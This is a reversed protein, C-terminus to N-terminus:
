FAETSDLFIGKQVRAANLVALGSGYIYDSGWQSNGPTATMSSVVELSGAEVAQIAAANWVSGPTFGTANQLYQM